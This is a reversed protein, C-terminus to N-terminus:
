EIKAIFLALVLKALSIMDPVINLVYNCQERERQITMFIVRELSPTFPLTLGTASLRACDVM